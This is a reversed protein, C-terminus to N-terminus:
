GATGHVCREEEPTNELERYLCLSKMERKGGLWIQRQIDDCRTEVIHCMTGMETEGANQWEYGLGTCFVTSGFSFNAEGM